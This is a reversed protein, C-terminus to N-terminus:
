QKNTTAKKRMGFLPILLSLLTGWFLNQMMFIFSVEIAPMQSVLTLSQNLEDVVQKVNGMNDKYAGQLKAVSAQMMDLMAGHDFFRFYVYQAIAFILAAYFFTYWSFVLGRRYSIVGELAYDRFRVLRWGVFFPTSFALLSGWSSLPAFVVLLFSAIWLLALFAGDQRAFAKVQVLASVNIM